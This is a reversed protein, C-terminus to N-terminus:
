ADGEEKERTVRAPLRGTGILAALKEGYEKASLEALNKNVHQEDEVVRIYIHEEYARCYWLYDALTQPVEPPLEEAM